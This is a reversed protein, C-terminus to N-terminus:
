GRGLGALWSSQHHTGAVPKRNTQKSKREFNIKLTINTEPTCLLSEAIYMYKYEKGPEKGNYAVIPYQTSNGTSCTPSRQNDIKYM